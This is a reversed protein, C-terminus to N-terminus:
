GKTSHHFIASPVDEAYWVCEEFTSVARQALEEARILPGCNEMVALEVDLMEPMPVSAVLDMVKRVRHEEPPNKMLAGEVAVLVEAQLTKSGHM